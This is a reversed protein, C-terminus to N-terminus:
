SEGPRDLLAEAAIWDIAGFGAVLHASDLALHYVAFDAFDAYQAASPHRALFRTRHDPEASKRAHGLLTLRPGTLPEELGSTGDILLSVRDDAAINRSHEALDSLLLLPAGRADHAILVLSAFPWGGRERSATSIPLACTQVGTM